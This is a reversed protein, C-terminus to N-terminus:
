VGAIVLAWCLREVGYERKGVLKIVGIDADGTNEAGSTPGASKM